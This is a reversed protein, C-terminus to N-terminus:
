LRHADLLEEFDHKRLVVYDESGVGNRHAFRVGVILRKGVEAAKTTWAHLEWAKLTYSRAETYKAEAYWPWISDHERTVADGPDHWKNGSGPTLDLCLAEALEEEWRRWRERLTM